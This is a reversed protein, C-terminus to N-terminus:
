DLGVKDSYRGSVDSYDNEGSSTGDNRMSINSLLDLDDVDSVSVSKRFKESNIRM